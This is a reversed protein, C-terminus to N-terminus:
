AVFSLIKSNEIRASARPFSLFSAKGSKNARLNLDATIRGTTKVSKVRMEILASLNLRMAIKIAPLHSM